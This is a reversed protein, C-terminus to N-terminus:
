PKQILEGNAPQRSKGDPQYRLSGTASSWLVLAIAILVVLAVILIVGFPVRDGLTKKGFFRGASRRHITDAVGATFEAPATPQGKLKGLAAMTEEFERYADRCVQCTALHARVEAREPDVLSGEHLDSFRAEFEEHPTATDESM